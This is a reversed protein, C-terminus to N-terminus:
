LLRTLENRLVQVYVGGAFRGQFIFQGTLLSRLFMAMHM